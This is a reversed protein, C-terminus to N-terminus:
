EMGRKGRVVDERIRKRLRECYDSGSYAECLGKREGAIRCARMRLSKWVGNGGRRTREGRKGALVLRRPSIAPGDDKDLPSRDQLSSAKVLKAKKSTTKRTRGGDPQDLAERRLAM